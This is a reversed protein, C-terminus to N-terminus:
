VNFEEPPNDIFQAVDSLVTIIEDRVDGPPLDGTLELAYAVRRSCFKLMERALKLRDEARDIEIKALHALENMEHVM